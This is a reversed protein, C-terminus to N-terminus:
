EDAADSTYLSVADLTAVHIRRVDDPSFINLSLKPDSIAKIKGAMTLGM